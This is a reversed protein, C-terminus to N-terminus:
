VGGEFAPNALFRVLLAADIMFYDKRDRLTFRGEESEVRRPPQCADVLREVRPRVHAETMERGETKRARIYDATLIDVPDLDALIRASMGPKWRSANSFFGYRERLAYFFQSSFEGRADAGPGFDEVLTEILSLEGQLLHAWPTTWQCQKGSSKFVSIAVSDRGTTDKAVDDLLHHAEELVRHLPTHHHAYIIGASITAGELKLEEFSNIYAVRLEQAARLAREHWREQVAPSPGMPMLALVDDGGAYVTVGGHREIISPVNRSFATLAQSVLTVDGKRSAADLMKGMSDGDMLLITFFGHPKSGVEGYLGRLERALSEREEDEVQLLNPNLLDDLHFFGGDLDRAKNPDQDQSFRMLGELRTSTESRCSRATQDVRRAYKAVARPARELAEEIWSAAGLYSTSPWNTQDLNWGIAEEAVRPFLRKVLAIACLRENERLDLSSLHRGLEQWFRDQDHRARARVHGSLEQWRGMMTCHDGPEIAPAHSRWNKRQDLLSLEEGVVWNIEWFHEIQRNWIQRTGEGYEEIADVYRERIVEACDRWAARIAEAAAEGARKGQSVDDVRAVFRNPLSCVHQTLPSARM